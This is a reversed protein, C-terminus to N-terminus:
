ILQKTNLFLYNDILLQMAVTDSKYVNVACVLKM